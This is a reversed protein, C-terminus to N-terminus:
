DSLWMQMIIYYLLHQRIVLFDMEKQVRLETLNEPHGYIIMYTNDLGLYESFLLSHRKYNHWSLTGLDSREASIFGAQTRNPHPVEM